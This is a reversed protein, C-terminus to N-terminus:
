KETRKGCYQCYLADRSIAKGCSCKNSSGSKKELEKKLEEIKEFIEAFEDGSVKASASLITNEAVLRGLKEYERSLREKIAACEVAKKSSEAIEGAKKGVKKATNEVADAFDNFFGM